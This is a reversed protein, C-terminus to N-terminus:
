RWGQLWREGHPMDSEAVMAELWEFAVPARRLEVRLRGEGAELMAYEAWLPKWLLEGDRLVRPLGVSGPNVVLGTGFVRVMQEHTHGGALVDAEVAGMLEALREEPTTPLVIDDFSRLSGHYCLLRRGNGLALEITPRFTKVFAREEDGLAESGWNEIDQVVQSLEEQPKPDLLWADTNGMVVPWDLTRLQALVEKPQPGTMAVDGLCVVQDVDERELEAVVTDLAVKNGHIDSILAIRM